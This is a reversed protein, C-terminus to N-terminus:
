LKEEYMQCNGTGMCSYVLFDNKGVQKVTSSAVVTVNNRVDQIVPDYFPPAYVLDDVQKDGIKMLIHEGRGNATPNTMFQTWVRTHGFIKCEIVGKQAAKEYTQVHPDKIDWKDYTLLTQVTFSKDKKDCNSFVLRDMGAANAHHVFLFVACLALCLIKKM